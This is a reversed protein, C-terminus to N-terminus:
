LTATLSVLFNEMDISECELVDDDSCLNHAIKVIGCSTNVKKVHSMITICKGETEDILTKIAKQSLFPTEKERQKITLAHTHM